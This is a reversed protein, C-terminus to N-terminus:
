RWQEAGKGISPRTGGTEDANRWDIGGASRELIDNVMGAEIGAAELGTRLERLLKDFRRYLRKQDLGLTAAIEAVTRGDEFRMVLILRDQTDLSGTLGALASSLRAAADHTERGALTEDPAKGRSPVDTLADDSEFRRRARVPLEGAMRELAPRSETVGHNTTLLEYAEEFTHGDRIMLRELLIAVAGRRKAEASPRWKGWAKIRFDLFLRQIVVTLYTRLSSRGRFQRLIAYDDEILRLKVHSAFDDTDAPSLRHRRCTFAIVRDILDLQSVLLAEGSEAAPV